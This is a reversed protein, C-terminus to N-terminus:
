IHAIRKAELYKITAILARAEMSDLYPRIEDFVRELQEYAKPGNRRGFSEVLSFLEAGAPAVRSSASGRERQVERAVFERFLRMQRLDTFDLTQIKMQSYQSANLLTRLVQVHSEKVGYRLITNVVGELVGNSLERITEVDAGDLIREMEAFREQAEELLHQANEHKQAIQRALSPRQIAGLLAQEEPTVGSPTGDVIIIRYNAKGSPWVVFAAAHADLTTVSTTDPRFGELMGSAIGAKRLMALVVMNFDGCVGAYLKDELGSM